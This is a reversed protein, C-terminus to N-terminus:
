GSFQIKSDARILAIEDWDIKVSSCLITQGDTVSYSNRLLSLGQQFQFQMSAQLTRKLGTSVVSFGDYPRDSFM